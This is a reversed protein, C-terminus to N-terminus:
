QISIPTKGLKRALQKIGEHSIIIVGQRVAEAIALPDARRAIAVIRANPYRKAREMLKRIESKTIEGLKIEGVINTCDIQHAVFDTEGEVKVSDIPKIALKSATGFFIEEGEMTVERNIGRLLERVYSEFTIGMAQMLLDIRRRGTPPHKGALLWEKLLPYSIENGRTLVSMKRLSSLINLVTNYKLKTLISIERARKGESVCRLVRLITTKDWKSFSSVFNIYSDFFDDFEGKILAMKAREVVTDATVRDCGILFGVLLELIKPIGGSLGALKELAESAYEIRAANLLERALIMSYRKDLPKIELKHFMALFANDAIGYEDFLFGASTVVIVFIKPNLRHFSDRLKWLLRARAVDQRGGRLRSFNEIFAHLEDFAVVLYDLRGAVDNLLKFAFDIMKFDDDLPREHLGRYMDLISSDLGLESVASYIGSFFDSGSVMSSCDVRFGIRSELFRDVISSKGVRRLGYILIFTKTGKLRLELFRELKRLEEERDVFIM